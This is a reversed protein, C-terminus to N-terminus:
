DDSCLASLRFGPVVGGVESKYADVNLDDEEKEVYDDSYGSLDGPGHDVTKAAASKSNSDQLSASGAGVSWPDVEAEGEDDIGGIVTYGLSTSFPAATRLSLNSPCFSSAQELAHFALFLIITCHKGSKM